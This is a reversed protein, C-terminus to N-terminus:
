CGNGSYKKEDRLAIEKLYLSNRYESISEIPDTVFDVPPEVPPLQAQMTRLYQLIRLGDVKEACARVFHNITKFNRRLPGWLDDSGTQQRLFDSMPTETDGSYLHPMTAFTEAVLDFSAPNYFPYRESQTALGMDVAPGTGFPVRHSVRSSPYVIASIDNLILGTKAFKQMLYFDEGGALPTIGGVRRYAWLPFAMASGLASIAYPNSIRLLNIFYHRMYCEYRLLARNSTSLVEVRGQGSTSLVEVRGQGSGDGIDVQHYYPIQAACCHPHKNFSDLLTQCYNEDVTTDADLSAVITNPSCTAAIADFLTKRAWGVGRKRGTWGHGPSSRDIITAEPCLRPLLNLLAENNRCTARQHEDPSTHWEDPQNVCIYLTYNRNTQQRLCAALNPLTELEDTAPIAIAIHNYPDTAM